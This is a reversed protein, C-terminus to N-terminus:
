VSKEVSAFGFASAVVTATSTFMDSEYLGM